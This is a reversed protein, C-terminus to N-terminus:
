VKIKQQKETEFEQEMKLRRETVKQLPGIIEPATRGAKPKVRDVGPVSEAAIKIVKQRNNQGINFKAQILSHLEHVEWVSETILTKLHSVAMDMRESANPMKNKKGTDAAFQNVCSVHAKAEDSWEFCPASDKLIPARRTRTSFVLTREEKKELMLVTESKREFQSGLHGRSKDGGPNQHIVNVVCCQYNIALNRVWRELANSEEEDNVSRALDATGDIVISHVGGFAETARKALYEVAAMIDAPEWGTMCFSLLYDPPCDVGSRRLSRTLLRHHDNRSQETDIHIVANGEPNTFELGLLDANPIAPTTAALIAGIFASKGSKIPAILTLHNGVHAIGVGALKFLCIEDEPEPGPWFEIKALRELLADEEAQQEEESKAEQARELSKRSDIPDPKKKSGYGLRSLERMAAKFDGDHELMAYVAYPKYLKESEFCTSTSFVWFRNEIVGFSASIGKDKGPRRWHVDDTQAWGHSKLLGIVDGRSDFDDGPSIDDLKSAQVAERPTRDSFSRATDLLGERDEESLVPMFEFDGQEIDYGASPAILFYGGQGRTEILTEHNEAASKQALKMNRFPEGECRFVLHYGGSPTKQILCRDWVDGLGAERCRAEYSKMLGDRYKEDIDICNVAGAVLAIAGGNKFNDKVQEVSPLEDIYSRWSKIVPVKNSSVPVCAIGDAHLSLATQLTLNM